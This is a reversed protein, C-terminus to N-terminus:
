PQWPPVYGTNADGAPGQAIGMGGLQEYYLAHTMSIYPLTFVQVLYGVFPLSGLLEWGIFSFDLIFLEWKHGQMLHKSQRICDMVSMEPHDILLYIALRYRYAAIIGPIVFLMSWLGIFLAELINLWLVRWLMGFGDLLNGFCPSANRITNLLFIVFGAGVVWMCLEMLINIIQSGTSPLEVTRSLFEIAYDLNGDMVYKIYTEFDASSMNIGVLRTSLASVLVMLLLYVLGVHTAKPKSAGMISLARAKLQQRNLQM